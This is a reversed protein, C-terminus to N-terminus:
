FQIAHSIHHFIIYHLSFCLLNFRKIRILKQQIYAILKVGNKRHNLELYKQQNKTKKKKM